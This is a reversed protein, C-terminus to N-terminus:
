RPEPDIIADAEIEVMWDPDIFRTVQLVTTAPRIERFFEGHVEAVRAWDQINVLFIRTRIVDALSCGPHYQPM